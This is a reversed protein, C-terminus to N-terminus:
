TTRAPRICRIQKIGNMAQEGLAVQMLVSGDPVSLRHFRVGVIETLPDHARSILAHRAALQDGREADRQRRDLAIELLAAVVAM